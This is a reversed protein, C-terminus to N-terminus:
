RAISAKYQTYREVGTMLHSQLWAHNSTFEIQIIRDIQGQIYRGVGTTGSAKSAMDALYRAVGTMTSPVEEEVPAQQQYSPLFISDFIECMSAFFGKNSM